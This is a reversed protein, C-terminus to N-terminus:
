SNFNSVQYLKKAFSSLKYNKGAFINEAVRSVLSAFLEHTGVGDIIWLSDGSRWESPGLPPESSASSMLRQDVDFSVQAWLVFGVLGIKGNHLKADAM